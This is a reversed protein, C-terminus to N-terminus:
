RRWGRRRRREQAGKPLETPRAPLTSRADALTHLVAVPQRDRRGGVRGFLRELACQRRGVSRPRRSNVHPQIGVFTHKAEVTRSGRPDDAICQYVMDQVDAASLEMMAATMWLTSVSPDDAAMRAWKDGWGVNTIPNEVDASPTPYMADRQITLVRALTKQYDSYLRYRALIGDQDSRHQDDIEMSFNELGWWTLANSTWHAFKPRLELCGSGWIVAFHIEFGELRGRRDSVDETELLSEGVGEELWRWKRRRCRPDEGCGRSLTLRVKRADGNRIFVHSQCRREAVM